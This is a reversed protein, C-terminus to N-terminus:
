CKFYVVELYGEWFEVLKKTQTGCDVDSNIKKKLYFYICSESDPDQTM